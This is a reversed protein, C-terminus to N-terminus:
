TSPTRWVVMAAVRGSPMPSLTAMEEYPVVSVSCTAQTRSPSPVNVEDTKSAPRTALQPATLQVALTGAPLVMIISVRLPLVAVGSAVQDPQDITLLPPVM